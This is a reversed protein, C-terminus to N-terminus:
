IMLWCCFMIQSINLYVFYDCGFLLVFLCLFNNLSCLLFKVTDDDDNIIIIIIFIISIITIM